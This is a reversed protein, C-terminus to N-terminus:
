LMMIKKILKVLSFLSSFFSVCSGREKVERGRKHGRLVKKRLM